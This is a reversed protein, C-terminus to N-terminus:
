QVVVRFFKQRGELANTVVITSNTAATPYNTVATWTAANFNTCAEVRHSHGATADFSFLFENTKVQVDKLEPLAITGPVTYEVVLHPPNDSARSGFHRATNFASELDSMLLWGNNSNTKALWGQVDAKLGDSPGFDYEGLDDVELSVSPDVVYDVVEQAGPIGWNVGAKATEWTATEDWATLMRFLEFNSPAPTQPEMVVFLRLTVSQIQANTPISSVDFRLLGRDMIGNSNRGRTGSLISLDGLPNSSDDSVLTANLVATLTISNTLPAAGSFRTVFALLLLTCIIRTVFMSEAKAM